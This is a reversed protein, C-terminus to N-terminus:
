KRKKSQKTAELETKLRYIEEIYIDEAWRAGAEFGTEMGVSYMGEAHKSLQFTKSNAVWQAAFEKAKSKRQDYTLM